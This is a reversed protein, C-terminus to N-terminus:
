SYVKYETITEQNKLKNVIIQVDEETSVIYVKSIPKQIKMYLSYLGRVFKSKILLISVKLYQEKLQRLKETFKGLKYIYSIPISEFCSTDFIMYFDQKKLYQSLWFTKLDEFEKEDKLTKGLSIKVFPFNTDDLETDSSM